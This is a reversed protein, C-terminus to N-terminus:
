EGQERGKTPPADLCREDPEVIGIWSREVGLEVPQPHRVVAKPSAAVEIWHQGEPESSTESCGPWIEDVGVENVGVDVPSDCGPPGGHDRGLVVVIGEAESRETM